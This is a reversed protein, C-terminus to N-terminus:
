KCGGDSAEPQYRASLAKIYAQEEASAGAALEIAKQLEAYARPGDEQDMPADINPGLVLAACWYAM